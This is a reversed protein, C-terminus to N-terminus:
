GALVGEALVEEALVGEALVGQVALVGEALLAPLAAAHRWAASLALDICPFTRPPLRLGAATRPRTM